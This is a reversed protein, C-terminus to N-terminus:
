AKWRHGYGKAQVSSGRAIQHFHMVQGRVRGARRAGKQFRCMLREFHWELVTQREKLTCKPLLPAM